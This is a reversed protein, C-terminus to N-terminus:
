HASLRNSLCDDWEKDTYFRVAYWDRELRRASLVRCPIGNFDSPLPALSLSDSPDFVLYATNTAVGAFGTAEWEVHKLEGNAPTPQAMVESKFKQSRARWRAHDRLLSQNWLLAGSTVLFALLASLLSLCQSWKKRIAFIALLVLFILTSVPAIVFAFLVVSYPSYVILAILAISTTAVVVLPLQLNIKREGSTDTM